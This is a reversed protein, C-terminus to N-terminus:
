NRESRLTRDSSTSLTKINNFEFLRLLLPSGEISCLSLLEKSDKVSLFKHSMKPSALKKNDRTYTVHQKERFKNLESYLKCFSENKMLKFGKTKYGSLNLIHECIVDNHECYVKNKLCYEAIDYINKKSKISLNKIINM